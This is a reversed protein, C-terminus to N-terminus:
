GPGNERDPAPTPTGCPVRKWHKGDQSVACVPWPLATEANVGVQQIYDSVGVSAKGNDVIRMAEAEDEAEVETAFEIEVTGRVTFARTSM